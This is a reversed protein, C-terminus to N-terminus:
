HKYPNPAGHITFVLFRNPIKKLNIRNYHLKYRSVNTPNYTKPAGYLM